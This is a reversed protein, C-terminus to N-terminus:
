CAHAQWKEQIFSQIKAKFIPRDFQLAHDRLRKPEFQQNHNEFFRVAEALAEPTQEYFYVGTPHDFSWTHSQSLPNIPIVTELAGGKGYAIVPKGSAQAELPVIGFDEEGPFIVARCYAYYRSIEEDTQKGLFEVTSGAIKRLRGEEPGWGIIKLPLELRNFAELALDIRKYPVLASVVLYYDSRDQSVTFREGDVPPYIVCADRKYHRRIRDAVNQSIAMFHDVRQCAALDWQRLHAMIRRTIFHRLAGFRSGFYADYLDWAYRMPTYTYSLHLAGPPRMAGKSVCHSSSLILDYGRFDFREIAMPFFPLYYRYFRKALPFHQIFSTRIKMREITSSVTGPSHLLSFLDADPFLECFVELCREAGRSSTLWDHVIAIKTLKM